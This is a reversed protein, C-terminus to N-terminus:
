ESGYGPGIEAALGRVHNAAATVRQRHEKRQADALDAEAGALAVAAWQCRRGAREVHASREEADLDVAMHEAM